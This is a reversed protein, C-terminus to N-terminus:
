TCLSIKYDIYYPKYRSWHVLSGLSLIDGHAIDLYLLPSEFVCVVSTPVSIVPVVAMSVTNASFAHIVVSLSIYRLIGVASNLHDISIYQIDTADDSDVNYKVTSKILVWNKTVLGILKEMAYIVVHIPSIM